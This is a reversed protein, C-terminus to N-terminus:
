ISKQTRVRLDAGGGWRPRSGGAPTTVWCRVQDKNKINIPQQNSAPANKRRNREHLRNQIADFDKGHENLGEFFAAIDDPSWQEWTRRRREEM